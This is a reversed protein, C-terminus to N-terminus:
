LDWDEDLKLDEIALSLEADEYNSSGKLQSATIRDFPAVPRLMDVINMTDRNRKKANSTNVQKLFSSGLLHTASPRTYPNRDLCSAVFQHLSNEFRRSMGQPTSMSRIRLQSQPHEREPSHLESVSNSPETARQRILVCEISKPMNGNLKELFIQTPSLGSFPIKGTALELALIGVSYIDSKETYGVLNQELIEPAVWPLVAVAHTPFNHVVRSRHCGNWLSYCYRIGTLCVRGDSSILVHSAKIARHIYGAKHLYELALLVNRLIYLIATDYLGNPFGAHIVDTCSGYDFFPFVTWIESNDVFSCHFSLISHHQLQMSLQMEYQLNELDDYELNDIKTKRVLVTSSSPKHNTIWLDSLGYTGQGLFQTCQFDEKKPDFRHVPEQSVPDISTSSVSRSKEM